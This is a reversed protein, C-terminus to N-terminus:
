IKLSAWEGGRSWAEGERETRWCGGNRFEIRFVVYSHRNLVEWEVVTHTREQLRLTATAQEGGQLSKSGNLALTGCYNKAGLANERM